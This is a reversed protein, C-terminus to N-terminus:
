LVTISTANRTSLEIKDGFGKKAYASTLRLRDGVKLNNVAEAHKRWASVWVTGTDDKLEFVALKVMEGKSTKVERIVPETSVEGEVNVSKLDESLSATKTVSEAISSTGVYTSTDVHIEFGGSSTAKVKANVLQLGVNRKLYPELEEAKENWMVVAVDGTSDSLTFRLVKGTSQDQRAFTSSPFVVKVVGILHINKHAKTIEKIKTAFRGISPYDEARANQPNIEIESKSGLHL